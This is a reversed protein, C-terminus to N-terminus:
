DEIEIRELLLQGGDDVIRGVAGCRPCSFDDGTQPYDEAYPACHFRMPTCRVNLLAGEALTGAALLDFGRIGYDVV